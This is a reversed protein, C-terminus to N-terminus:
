TPGYATFLSYHVTFLLPRGWRGKSHSNQSSDAALLMQRIEEAHRGEVVACIMDDVVDKPTEGREDRIGTDAGANLLTKVIEPNGAWVAQHLATTGGDAQLNVSAGLETLCKVSEAKGLIVANFLPTSEWAARGDLEAGNAVLVKITSCDATGAAMYIATEGSNNRANVEAGSDILVQAVEPTGVVAATMLPTLQTDGYRFNADMGGKLLLKVEGADRNLIARVM